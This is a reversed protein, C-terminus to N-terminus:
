VKEYLMMEAQLSPKYEIKKPPKEPELKSMIVMDRYEDALENMRRRTYELLEQKTRAYHFGDQGAVIPCFRRAFKIAKAFIGKGYNDGLKAKIQKATYTQKEQRLLDAIRQALVEKDTITTM